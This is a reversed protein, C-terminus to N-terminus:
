KATIVSRDLLADIDDLDILIRDSTLRYSPLRGDRLLRRITKESSRAYEAAERVDAWRRGGRPASTTPEAEATASM